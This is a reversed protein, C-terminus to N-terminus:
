GGRGVRPPNVAELGELESYRGDELAEVVRAPIRWAKGLKLGYRRALGYAADRGIRLRTELEKVTLLKAEGM